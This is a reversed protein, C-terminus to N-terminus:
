WDEDSSNDSLSKELSKSMRQLFGKQDMKRLDKPKLSVWGQSVLGGISTSAQHYVEILQVSIRAKGDKAEIKMRYKGAVTLDIGYGRGYAKFASDVYRALIFKKEQSRETVVSEENTMEHDIWQNARKYIEDASLNVEIVQSYTEAEVAEAAFAATSFLAFILGIATMTKKFM